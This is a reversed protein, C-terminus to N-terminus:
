SGADPASVRLLPKRHDIILVINLAPHLRRPNDLHDVTLKRAKSSPRNSSANNPRIKAPSPSITRGFPNPHHPRRIDRPTMPHTKSPEIPSLMQDGPMIDLDVPVRSDDPGIQHRDM